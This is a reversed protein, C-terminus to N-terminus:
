AYNIERKIMAVTLDREDLKMSELKDMIAKRVISQLQTSTVGPPLQLKVTARMTVTTTKRLGM